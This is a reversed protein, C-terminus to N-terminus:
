DVSNTEHAGGGWWWSGAHALWGRRVVLRDGRAAGTEVRRRVHGRQARAVPDGPDAGREARGGPQEGPVGVHPAHEAVGVGEAVAPARLVQVARPAVRPLEGPLAAAVQEREVRRVVGPQAPHEGGLEGDAPHAAEFRADDLDDVLVQVREFAVARGGVEDGLVRQRDGRQDDAFQEAHRGGVPGLELLAGVALEVGGERLLLLDLQGPLGERVHGLEDGPRPLVRALVQEAHEDPVVVRLQAVGLQDADPVQQEDGPVLGGRVHEAEARERQQAM